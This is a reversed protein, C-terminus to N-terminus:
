LVSVTGQRRMNMALMGNHLINPNHRKNSPRYYSETDGVGMPFLKMRADERGQNEHM